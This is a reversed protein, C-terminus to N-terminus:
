KKRAYLLRRRTAKRIITDQMKSVINYATEADEYGIMAFHRLAALAEGLADEQTMQKKCRDRRDDDSM